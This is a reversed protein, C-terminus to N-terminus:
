RFERFQISSLYDSCLISFMFDVFPGYFSFMSHNRYSKCTKQLDNYISRCTKHISTLGSVLFLLSLSIDQLIVVAHHRGMHCTNEDSVKVDSEESDVRFHNDRPGILLFLALHNPHHYRENEYEPDAMGRKPVHKELCNEEVRVAIM